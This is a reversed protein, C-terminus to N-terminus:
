GMLGLPCAAPAAPPHNTPLLDLEQRAHGATLRSIDKLPHESTTWPTSGALGGLFSLSPLRFPWTM